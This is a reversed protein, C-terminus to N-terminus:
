GRAHMKPWADTFYVYGSWVALLASIYLCFTGPIQFPIDFLGDQLLLMIIAAMQFGTKWKGISSVPVGMGLGSMRERLAMIIIERALIVMVLLLHARGESLLLLLASIVLLKDAVPDFFRGFSTYLGRRRAIYGDAWDTIAALSFFLTSLILGPRGPLFAFGVFFPILFVRVATLSNPLNWIM